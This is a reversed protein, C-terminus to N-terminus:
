SSGVNSFDLGRGGAWGDVGWGDLDHVTAAFDGGSEATEGLELGIGFIEGVGEEALTELGDLVKGTDGDSAYAFTELTATIRGALIKQSTKHLTAILLTLRKTAIFEGSFSKGLEDSSTIGSRVRRTRQQIMNNSSRSDHLLKILLNGSNNGLINSDRIVFGDLMKGVEAVADVLSQADM